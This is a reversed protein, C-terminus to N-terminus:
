LPRRCLLEFGATVFGLLRAVAKPAMRVQCPPCFNRVVLEKQDIRGPLIPVHAFPWLSVAMFNVRVSANSRGHWDAGFRIPRSM